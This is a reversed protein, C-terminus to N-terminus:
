GCTEIAKNCTEGDPCDADAKCPTHGTVRVDPVRPSSVIFEMCGDGVPASDVTRRSLRGNPYGSVGSTLLADVLQASVVAEGTDPFDCQLVIPSNGHQDINIDVRVVSPVGDTVPAPWSITLDKSEEINWEPKAMDLPDVGVGRLDLEGFVGDTSTMHIAAGGEFAPHPLTTTFYSNGPQLPELLAEDALGTIEVTGLDQPEPFPICSGDHDCTQGPGCPPTCFPNNRKLLRCAEVVEVEELITVPVVGDAVSGDVFSFDTQVEVLFAGYRSDLPCVGALEVPEGGSGSDQAADPPVSVGDEKPSTVDTEPSSGADSPAPVTTDSDVADSATNSGGDDGCALLSVCSILVLAVARM